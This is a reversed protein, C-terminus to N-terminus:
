ATDVSNSAPGSRLTHTGIDPIFDSLRTTNELWEANWRHDAWFAASRNNGDSSSILQQAAHAVPFRSKLHLANGGSSRTLASHLLHGPEIARRALSLKAGNRRLEVPHIGALIPLNDAPKPRLCGTAFSLADNIVPDILLTHASCCWTSGRM